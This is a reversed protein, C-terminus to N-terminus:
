EITFGFNYSITQGDAMNVYWDTVDITGGEISSAFRSFNPYAKTVSVREKPWAWTHPICVGYPAGGKQDIARPTHIDQKTRDNVIYVDQTTLTEHILLDDSERWVFSHLPNINWDSKNVKSFNFNIDETNVFEGDTEKFGQAKFAEHLEMGQFLEHVEGTKKDKFFAYIPDSAGLAVLRFHLGLKTNGWNGKGRYVQIVVDNLDFDGNKTDEFAFTYIHHNPQKNPKSMAPFAKVNGEFLMVIDKLNFNSIWDEFGVYNRGNREYFIVHNAEMWWDHAAGSKETYGNEVMYQSLDINNEGEAYWQLDYPCKNVNEGRCFFSIETGEPFTYSPNGDADYYVLKYSQCENTWKTAGNYCENFLYKKVKKVEHAQGKDFYYYGFYLNSNNTGNSGIPTVTIESGGAGVTAYYFSRVSQDFHLFRDVDNTPYLDNYEQLLDARSPTSFVRTESAGSIIAIQDDWGKDAFHTKNFTDEWDLESQLPLNEGARKMAKATGLQYYPATFDVYADTTKVPVVRMNGEADTVGVYISRLHNPCEFSLPSNLADTEALITADGALPNADYVALTTATFDAPYDTVTLNVKTEMNWTQEPHIAFGLTKEAQEQEAQQRSEQIGDMKSCSAFALAVMTLSFLLKQM